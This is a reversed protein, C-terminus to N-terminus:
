VTNAEPTKPQPRPALVTDFDSEHTLAYNLATLMLTPLQINYENTKRVAHRYLTPPIKIIVPQPPATM